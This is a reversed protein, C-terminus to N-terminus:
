RYEWLWLRKTGVVPADADRVKTWTGGGRGGGREQGICKWGDWRYIDGDHRASLSYAVLAKATWYPWRRAACERWLRLMPRTAWKNAPDSCLRACEVLVGRPLDITGDDSLVHDSVTSTGIVVSVPEGDVMLAWCDSGFPRECPGLNHGWRVMLLNAEALTIPELGAVPMAFRLQPLSM